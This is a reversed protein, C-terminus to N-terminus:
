VGPIPDEQSGQSGALLGLPISGALGFHALSSPNIVSKVRNPAVGYGSNRHLAMADVLQKQSLRPLKELGPYLVEHPEIRNRRRDWLMWQNAFIGQNNQRAIRDNEELARTYAPSVKTVEKPERVWDVDRMTAPVNPNIEGNASRFKAAGHANLHQMVADVFFGRGGPASLVQDFTKLQEKKPKGANFADVVSKDFVAHQKKDEFLNGKFETAMHRDIASIAADMPNQWVTGFSGTKASLGPVQSAVRSVFNKWQEAKTAGGEADGKFKFFDPKEQVMKAFDSVRTYDPSGTAGLGGRSGEQLGFKGAIEKSIQERVPRQAASPPMNDLSWPTLNAIRDIDEPNKAMMSAVAFQNETLPNNPSLLGMLYQNFMRENSLPGQPSMTVMMRNHLQRHVDPHLDNPDIGQGKIHLLDYYSFPRSTDEIGGPVTFTDGNTKQYPVLSAEFEANSGPGLNEVGHSKGFAGWDEPTFEHPSKGNFVLDAEPGYATRGQLKPANSAAADGVALM